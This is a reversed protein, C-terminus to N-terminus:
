SGLELKTAAGIRRSLVNVITKMTEGQLSVALALLVETYYKERWLRIMMWVLGASSIGFGSLVSQVLVPKSLNLSVLVVAAKQVQTPIIKTSNVAATGTAAM